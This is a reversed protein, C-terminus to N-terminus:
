KGLEEATCLEFQWPTSSIKWQGNVNKLTFESEYSYGGFLMFVDQDPTGITVLISASDKSVSEQVLNVSVDNQEEVYYDCRQNRDEQTTFSVALAPDNNQVAAIYQQVVGQPSNPDSVHHAPRLSVAILAAIVLAVCVALLGFLARRAPASISTMVTNERTILHLVLM